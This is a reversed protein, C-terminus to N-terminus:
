INPAIRELRIALHEENMKLSKVPNMLATSVSHYSITIIAILVASLGALVFVWWEIETRFAFDLLWQNMFYYAIPAAIFISILVLKIYDRSLDWVLNVIPSGLVKKIGIEKIRQNISMVSIAFLGLCSLFIALIAAYVFMKTFRRESRYQENRNEELFSGLYTSNPAFKKYTKEILALTADVDHAAIKIFLYSYPFGNVMFTMPEINNRLSEFHYDKIIGIIELGDNLEIKSNLLDNSGLLSAMSQNIICAKTSDSPYATSFDRGEKLAMGMTKIYNFDVFLVNTNIIKGKHMFGFQSKSSSNDKGFGVNNDAAAISIIKPNNNLESKFLSLLRSGNVETGIPVSIVHDQNFGLPKTRLYQLQNWIIITCCILLVSITFQKIILAKRLLNSGSAIKLKGKLVDITNVKAIFWAPYGGALFTIVLFTTLIIALVKKDYLLGIFIKSNFVANYYPIAISFLILGLLLSVVCVILAEGWFQRVVQGKLAGLAKRIGVEKTRLMSRSISLNIFNICAIFLIFISIIVLTYPYIKSISFAKGIFNNFHEDAFSLLQAAIIDGNEDPKAGETKLQSIEKEYYKPGFFKLKKEFEDFTVKDNLQVYLVDSQSNWNDKIEHYFPMAEYRIMMDNEISTNDPLKKTIGSVTYNIKKGEFDAELVKGMAEEQGFINIAIDERLVINNQDSLATEASGKVFEFSFMQTYDADVAVASQPIIKDKYKVSFGIDRIRTIHKIEERYETFLADRLPAPTSSGYQVGDPKMVKLYYRYIDDKNKHVGNFTFEQYSTLFLLISAAFAMSLGFLNILSYTKNKLLSRIGIKLYNQLM